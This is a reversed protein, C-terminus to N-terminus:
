GTALLAQPRKSRGGLAIVALGIAVMPEPVSQPQDEDVRLIAQSGDTLTATFALQGRNNLGTLSLDQIVSGLLSDGVGIIRENQSGSRRFLSGADQYAITGANNILARGFTLGPQVQAVGNEVVFAQRDAGDGVSWLLKGDDSTTLFSLAQKSLLTKTGDVVGYVANPPTVQSIGPFYGTSKAYTLQQDSLVAASVESRPGFRIRAGQDILQGDFYLQEYPYISPTGIASLGRALASVQGQNNIDIAGWSVEEGAFGFRTTKLSKLLTEDKLLVNDTVTGGPFNSVRQASYAVSGANNIAVSNGLTYIPTSVFNQVAPGFGLTSFLGPLEGQSIVTSQTLGNSTFIGQGTGTSTGFFALQGSDNLNGARLGTWGNRSDVLTTFGAANAPMAALTTGITTGLLLGAMVQGLPSYSM